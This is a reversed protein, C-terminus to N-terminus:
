AGVWFEDSLPEDFDDAAQIAGPHLGAVRTTRPAEPPVIRAVATEGQILIVETGAAVLAVLARLDAQPDHVNVQMTPM